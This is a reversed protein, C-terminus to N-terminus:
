RSRRWPWRIPWISFHANLWARRQDCNCTGNANAKFRGRSLRELLRDARIGWATMRQEDGRALKHIAWAVVDGLGIGVPQGAEPEMCPAGGNQKWHEHYGPTTRCLKHGHANLTCGIVPCFGPQDCMCPTIREAAAIIIECDSCSM